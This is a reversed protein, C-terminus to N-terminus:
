PRSSNCVVDFPDFLTATYNSDLEKDRLIRCCVAMSKCYDYDYGKSEYLAMTAVTHNSPDVSELYKQAKKPGVRWVGKFGDVPDGAIWQIHFFLDAEAETVLSPEEEKTPNWHWGPCSKMDKDISVGIAEGRSCYVGLIDDAELTAITLCDYAEECYDRVYSLCKPKEMGERNQKYMPYFKKRYYTNRPASFALTVKDCGVPTWQDVYWDVYGNIDDIGEIDCHRAINIIFFDADLLASTPRKM